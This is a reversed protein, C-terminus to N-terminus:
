KRHIFQYLEHMDNESLGIQRPMISVKLKRIRPPKGEWSSGNELQKKFQEFTMKSKALDPGTKGGGTGPMNHCLVCKGYAVPSRESSDCATLIFIFVFSLAIKRM